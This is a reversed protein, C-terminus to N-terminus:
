SNFCTCVSSSAALATEDDHAASEQTRCLKGAAVGRTQPSGASFAFYGM